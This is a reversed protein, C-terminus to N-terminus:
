LYQEITSLTGASLVYLDSLSVRSLSLSTLSRSLHSVARSDLCVVTVARAHRECRRRPRGAEVLRRGRHPATLHPVLGGGIGAQHGPRGRLSRAHRMAPGGAGDDGPAEAAAADDHPRLHLTCHFCGATDTAGRGEKGTFCDVGTSTLTGRPPSTVCHSACRHSSRRIGLFPIPHRVDFPRRTVHLRADPPGWFNSVHRHAVTHRLM